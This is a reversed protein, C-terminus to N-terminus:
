NLINEVNQRIKAAKAADEAMLRMNVELEAIEESAIAVQGQIEDEVQKLEEVIRNFVKVVKNIRRAGKVQSKKANM